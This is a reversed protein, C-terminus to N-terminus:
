YLVVQERDPTFGSIVLLDVALYLGNGEIDEPPYVQGVILGNRKRHREEQFIDRIMRRLARVHHPIGKSRSYM